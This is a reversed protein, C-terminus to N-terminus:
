LHLEYRVDRRDETQLGEVLYADWGLRGEEGELRVNRVDAALLVLEVEYELSLGTFMALMSRLARAALGGPLFGNFGDRDLPGVVLRLRLDRQWVRAGAITGVGLVANDSGLTTQQAPPVDYWRGVFQEAVIHQGFYESLVRALQVSSAPRQRVSAAFYAISEDLVAGEDSGSLRRRLAGDGLGALSLLLPLFADQGDLQYQLALRYKRWAQYFLALSRNSFSDLFARAGEAEADGKEQYQHEAIRETYHLPLVGQGGLLGMFAPTLRVYKLSGAQLAEAVVGPETDIDRPEAQVTELQSAPFGLSVSNQFRLFRAVLDTSPQGRRRLWLELMRVAQVFEFRYPERFLRDIVAPEFRRQPAPM